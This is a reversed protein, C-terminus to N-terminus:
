EWPAKPSEIPGFVRACPPLADLFQRGYPKTVVRPDLLVVIGRDNATRVLRGFGQKLKIIAEPMQHEGFPDGGRRKIAELRAELLPRDPVSFPLRTIIVNSLSEGPVDVGQWFTDTGFLVSHIDSRFAAVLRSTPMGEGQTFLHVKNEEFWPALAKAARQLMRYSTFLVFAKGGTQDLYRPIERIVAKEFEDASASPDPMDKAIHLTVQREFDFPSGVQLTEPSKLGLRRSMFAFGSRTGACLTASTLVCTKVRSWLVKNLVPGVDLPAAMLSLRQRGVPGELDMWYVSDPTDQALWSTLAGALADARDRAGMLEVQREPEEEFLSLANDLATALRRLAEGLPDEMGLPARLRGNGAEPRARKEALIRFFDLAAFRTQRAVRVVDDLQLYSLLGKGSRENHLRNLLHDVQGQTIRLGMHESAVAEFNHAEDIILLDYKPLLEAGNKRLALDTALLAHNVVLVNASRMRRRAQFYFCDQHTPCQRGLCNGDESVVADWVLPLPRFDLDARSGDKTEKAWAAVKELQELEEVLQFTALARQRALGLRRLSIYNGRGKVLVATFEEPLVARLFPLDKALLQEQLSITHTAVVVKKKARTAALIAPVLYAFSKGVGTGAEVLLHRELEIATAVARAMEVQQPRSEYTPLRRAISGDPGLVPTPDLSPGDM